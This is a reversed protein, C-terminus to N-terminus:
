WTAGSKAAKGGGTTPPTQVSFLFLSLVFGLLSHVANSLNVPAEMWVLEIWCVAATFVGIGLMAPILRRFVEASYAHFILSFWDKPNYGVM